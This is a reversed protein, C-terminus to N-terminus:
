FTAAWPSLRTQFASFTCHEPLESLNASQSNLQAQSALSMSLTMPLHSGLCHAETHCDFNPNLRSISNLWLRPLNVWGDTLACLPQTMPLQEGRGAGIPSNLQLNSKSFFLCFLVGGGLEWYSDVKRHMISFVFIIFSIVSTNIDIDSRFLKLSIYMLWYECTHLSLSGFYRYYSIVSDNSRYSYKYCCFM